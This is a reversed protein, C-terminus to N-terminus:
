IAAEFRLGGMRAAMQGFTSWRTGIIHRTRSLLLMEVLAERQGGKPVGFVSDVWAKDYCVVRDPFTTLFRLQTAACDTALFFRVGPAVVRKMAAEFAEDTSPLYEARHPGTVADGRRIHVGIVDHGDFFRAAFADVEAAISAEARLERCFRRRRKRCGALQVGRSRLAADLALHGKDHVFGQHRIQRRIARANPKISEDLWLSALPVGREIAQDYAARDILEFDNAFLDHWGTDDFGMNAEWLMAFRLSYKEAIALTSTVGLLRNGLGGAARAIAYPPM